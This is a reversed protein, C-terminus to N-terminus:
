YGLNMWLLMMIMALPLSLVVLQGGLTPVVMICIIILSLDGKKYSDLLLLHWTKLLGTLFQVALNLLGDQGPRQGCKQNILRTLPFTTAIFVMALILLQIPPM